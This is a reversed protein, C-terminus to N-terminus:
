AGAGGDAASDAGAGAGTGAETEAEALTFWVVKSEPTCGGYITMGWGVSLNEVLLLGRGHEHEADGADSGGPVPLARPENDEVYVTVERRRVTVDVQIQWSDTHRHSNTVVETVCLRADDALAPHDTIHLLSGVFDRAIRPACASNPVVLRYSQGNSRSPPPPSLPPVLTSEATM